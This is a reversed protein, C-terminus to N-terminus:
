RVTEIRIELVEAYTATRDDQKTVKVSHNDSYEVRRPSDFGVKGTITTVTVRSGRPQRAIIPLDPEMLKLQYPETQCDSCRLGLYARGELGPLIQEEEIIWLSHRNACGRTQCSFYYRKM